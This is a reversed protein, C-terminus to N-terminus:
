VLEDGLRQLVKQEKKFWTLEQAYVKVDHEEGDCTRFYDPVELFWALQALLRLSWQREGDSFSGLGVLITETIQWGQPPMHADLQDRVSKRLFSKSYAKRLRRVLYVGHKVELIPRPAQFAAPNKPDMNSAVMEKATLRVAYLGQSRRESSRKEPERRGHSSIFIIYKRAATESPTGHVPILDFISCIHWM